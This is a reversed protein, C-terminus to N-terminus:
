TIGGMGMGMATKMAAGVPTGTDQVFAAAAEDLRISPVFNLLHQQGENGLQEGVTKWILCGICVGTKNCVCWQKDQTM